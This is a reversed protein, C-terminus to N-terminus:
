SKAAVGYATLGAPRYVALATAVILVILAAAADGTLQVRLEHAVPHSMLIRANLESLQTTPVMHLLLVLTCPPTILTKIVVWWHRFLGWPTGLAQVIGSLPAILSLPVIVFWGTMRMAIYAAQATSPRPESLGAIALALFCAVAGTWGVSTLVHITLMFKRWGATM